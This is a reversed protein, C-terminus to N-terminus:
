SRNNIKPNWFDRYKAAYGDKIWRAFAESEKKIDRNVGGIDYGPLYRRAVLEPKKM